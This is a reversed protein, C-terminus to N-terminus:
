EGRAAGPQGAGEAKDADELELRRIAGGPFLKELVELMGNVMKAADAEVSGSRRPVLRPIRHLRHLPNHCTIFNTDRVSAWHSHAFTSTWAYYSEYLDMSNSAKALSRLNTGAWHGVDINLFEQWQDENAIQELAAAEYFSPTEGALEQNKLFALKAQGAGYVRWTRWLGAEDKQALYNLTIAGEVLARLALRGMVDEHMNAMALEQVVTLGYLVLGFAGDLRADVDTGDMNAFFRDIVSDRAGLVTQASLRTSSRREEDFDTPDACGTRRGCEKWFASVWQPVPSRRLMMENARISPRVSRQDGRNPYEYFERLREEMGSPYHMKGAMQPTMMKFWRIDTSLQSQHNLTAGVALALTHWDDEQPEVNLGAKWRSANPLSDLLLLPRLAAYGLPHRLPINIFQIFLEDPMQALTQMDLVSTFDITGDAPPLKDAAALRGGESFWPACSNLVARLCGLFEERPLVEGLLAAWLMLPLHDNMWSSQRLQEIQNLPTLLRGREFKHSGLSSYLKSAATQGQSSKKKSPQKSM